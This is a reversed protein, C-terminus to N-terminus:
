HCGVSTTIPFSFIFDIQKPSLITLMFYTLFVVTVVSVPPLVRVRAGTCCPSAPVIMM